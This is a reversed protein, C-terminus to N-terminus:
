EESVKDMVGPKDALRENVNRRLLAYIVSFIPIFVIIGFIGSVSGGVVVALLTWIAPLGVSGGVVRPYILNGEIQQVVFFLIIFFILKTPADVALMLIGFALGIFAGVFPIISMSGIIVGITIADPFGGILLVICFMSGLIVAELCQGSLFGSFVKYSLASVYCAEDAWKKPLYAYLIKKAQMGLKKKSTLIYVAFILGFGINSFVGVVSGAAAGVNSLINSVNDKLNEIIKEINLNEIFGTILTLDIGYGEIKAVWVPYNAAIGAVLGRISKALNPFIVYGILVIVAVVIVLTIVLAIPTKMNELRESPTKRKRNLRDIQKEFFGMPVNLIFAIAGGVILPMFLSIVGWACGLVLKLNILAVYLIVGTVVLILTNKFQKNMKEMKLVKGGEFGRIICVVFCPAAGM